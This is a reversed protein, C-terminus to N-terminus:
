KSEYSIVEFKDLLLQDLCKHMTGVKMQFCVIWNSPLNMFLALGVALNRKQASWEELHECLIFAPENPCDEDLQGLQLMMHDVSMSKVLFVMNIEQEFVEDIIPWSDEHNIVELIVAKAM